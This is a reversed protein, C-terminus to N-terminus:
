RGPRSARAQRAGGRGSYWERGRGTSGASPVRCGRRPSGSAPRLLEATAASGRRGARRRSDRIIRRSKRWKVLPDPRLQLSSHLVLLRDKQGVVAVVPQLLLQVEQAVLAARFHRLADALGLFEAVDVLVGLVVVGLVLLSEHL